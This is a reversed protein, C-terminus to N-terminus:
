LITHSDIDVSQAGSEQSHKRKRPLGMIPADFLRLRSEFRFRFRPQQHNRHHPYHQHHPHSHSDLEKPQSTNRTTPRVTVSSPM